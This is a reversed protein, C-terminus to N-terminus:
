LLSYIDVQGNQCFGVILQGTDKDYLICHPYWNNNWSVLVRLQTNLQKNLLVVRRNDTDVVLVRGESDLAICLPTALQGIGSGRSGGFTAIINGENNVECVRNLETMHDDHSIIFTKNTTQVVSHPNTISIPLKINTLQVGAANYVLVRGFWLESDESNISVLIVVLGDVLFFLCFLILSQMQLKVLIRQDSHASDATM